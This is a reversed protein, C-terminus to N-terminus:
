LAGRSATGQELIEIVVRRLPLPNPVRSAGLNVWAEDALAGASAAVARADRVQAPEKEGSVRFRHIGVLEVSDLGQAELAAQLAPRPRDADPNAALAGVLLRLQPRASRRTSRSAASATAGCGTASTRRRRPARWASASTTSTSRTRSRWCTSPASCSSSGASRAGLDRMPQDFAQNDPAHLRAMALVGNLLEVLREGEERVVAALVRDEGARARDIARGLREQAQASSM